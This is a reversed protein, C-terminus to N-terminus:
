RIENKIKEIISEADILNDKLQEEVTGVRVFDDKVCFGSMKVNYSLESYYKSIGEFLGGESVNDEIVVIRSDKVANLINQDLPKLSRADVLSMGLTEAVKKGVSLASGFSIIVGKTGKLIYDWNPEVFPREGIINDVSGKPYRIAVTKYSSASFEIMRKFEATDRPELVVIGPMARLFGLDYIGQHTAGDEGTLGAHDICITVPM